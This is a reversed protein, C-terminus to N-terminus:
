VVHQLLTLQTLKDEWRFSGFILFFVSFIFCCNDLIRFILCCLVTIGSLHSVFLHARHSGVKCRESLKWVVTCPTPPRPLARHVGQTPSMSSLTWSAWPLILNCCLIDFLLPRWLSLVGFTLPSDEELIWTGPHPICTLLSNLALSLFMQSSWLSCHRASVCLLSYHSNRGALRSSKM